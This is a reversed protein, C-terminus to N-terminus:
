GALTPRTAIWVVASRGSATHRRQGSDKVYGQEMLEVRRPRYTNPRLALAETAEEDTAGGVSNIHKWVSRHLDGLRKTSISEAAARSTASGSVYGPEYPYKPEGWAASM